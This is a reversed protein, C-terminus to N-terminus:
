QARLEELWEWAAREAEVEEDRAINSAECEFKELEVQGILTVLDLTLGQVM